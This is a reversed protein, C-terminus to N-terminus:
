EGRQFDTLDLRQESGLEPGETGQLERFSELGHFALSTNVIRVIGHLGENNM